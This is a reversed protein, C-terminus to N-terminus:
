LGIVRNLVADPLCVAQRLGGCASLRQSFEDLKAQPLPGNKLERSLEKQIESIEIVSLVSDRDSGGHRVFDAAMFPDNISSSGLQARCKELANLMAEGTPARSAIKLTENAEASFKLNLGVSGIILAGWLGFAALSVPIGYYTTVPTEGLERTKDLIGTHKTSKILQEM